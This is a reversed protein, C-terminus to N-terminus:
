SALELGSPPPIPPQPAGGDAILTSANNVHSAHTLMKGGKVNEFGATTPFLAVTAFLVVMSVAFTSKVKSMQAETNFPFSPAQITVGRLGSGVVAYAAICFHGRLVLAQNSNCGFELFGDRQWHALIRNAGSVRCAIWHPRVGLGGWM